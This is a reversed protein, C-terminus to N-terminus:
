SQRPCGAPMRTMFGRARVVCCGVAATNLARQLRRYRGFSVSSSAHRLVRARSPVARGRYVLSLRIVCYTDWLMTTDLALYIVSDQWDAKGQRILPAYARYAQIRRQQLWRSFRRQTSQAYVARSDVHDVWASLHITGSQILGGDLGASSTVSMEGVERKIQLNLCRM